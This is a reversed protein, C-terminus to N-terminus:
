NLRTKLRYIAIADLVFADNRSGIAIKLGESPSIAFRTEDNSLAM